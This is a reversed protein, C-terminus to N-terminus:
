RDCHGSDHRQVQVHLAGPAGPILRSQGLILTDQDSINEPIQIAYLTGGVLGCTVCTLLVALGIIIWVTPKRTM